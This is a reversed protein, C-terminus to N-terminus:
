QITEKFILVYKKTSNFSCFQLYKALTNLFDYPVLVTAKLCM